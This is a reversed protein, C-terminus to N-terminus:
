LRRTWGQSPLDSTNGVFFGVQTRTDQKVWVELQEDLPIDQLALMNVLRSMTTLTVPEDDMFIVGYFVNESV